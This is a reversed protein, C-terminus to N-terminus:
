VKSRYFRHWAIKIITYYYKSQELDSFNAFKFYTSSREEAFIQCFENWIKENGDKMFDDKFFHNMGNIIIQKSSNDQENNLTEEKNEINNNEKSKFLNSIYDKPNNRYEEYKKLTEEPTLELLQFFVWWTSYGNEKDNQCYYLCYALYFAVILLFSSDCIVVIGFADISSTSLIFIFNILFKPIWFLFISWFIKWGRVISNHFLIITFWIAAAPLQWSLGMVLGSGSPTLNADVSLVSIVISSIIYYHVAILFSLRNKFELKTKSM